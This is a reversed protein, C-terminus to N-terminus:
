EHQMRKLKNYENIVEDDSIPRYNRVDVGVNINLFTPKGHSTHTWKHDWHDHVHGVIAFHCNGYVWEILAPDHTDSDTPYHTVFVRFNSITCILHRGITKTKNQHDHNGELLVLNSNIKKAYDNWKLKLGMVGKAGGRTVFDGVHILNDDDGCRMNAEAILRENMHEVDHFPRKCYKLINPHGLHWDATWYRKSM